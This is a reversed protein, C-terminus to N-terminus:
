ASEEGLSVMESLEKAMGDLMTEVLLQENKERSAISNVVKRVLDDCLDSSSSEEKVNKVLSHLCQSFDLHFVWDFTKTYVKEPKRITEPNTETNESNAAIEMKRRKAAKRNKAEQKRKKRLKSKEEEYEDDSYGEYYDDEEEYHEM